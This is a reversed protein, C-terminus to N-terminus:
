MGWADIKDYDIEVFVLQEAPRPTTARGDVGDPVHFIAPASAINLPSRPLYM